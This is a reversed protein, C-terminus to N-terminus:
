PPVGIWLPRKMAWELFPDYVAHMKRVFWPERAHGGRLLLACMVPVITLSLTLAALLAFTITLAVPGFLRGELGQLSLLPVFVAVIIVVGSVLPIM